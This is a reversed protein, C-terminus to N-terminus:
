STPFLFSVVLRAGWAPKDAPTVAFYRGGAGLSLAQTGITIVKSIVLDLPVTWCHGAAGLWNYTTESVFTINWAQWFSYAIFPQFLMLSYQQAHTAAPLVNAGGFSWVQNALVGVTWVSQQTLVVASPGLGWKNSGLARTTSTPLVFAPGVGWIWKSNNIPSLFTTFYTNALGFAGNVGPAMLPQSVIPMVTRTIINWNKNLQVPIVPQINLIYQTKSEPGQDFTWNNQFPLSILAAVPNQTQKNLDAASDAFVINSMCSIILVSIYCNNGLINKKM